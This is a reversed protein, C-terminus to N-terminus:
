CSYDAPDAVTAGNTSKYVISPLACEVGHKKMARAIAFVVEQRNRIFDGTAPQIDFHALVMGQVHDTEFSTLVAHFSKSGDSVLKPCALKIEQKIEELVAPLKDLDSHKFRLYQRIRSRTVRSLNSVRSKTLQSNPIRTVINDYGQFITDVLGIELIKGATGDGLRVKDGVDIANWANITVGGVIETALDKSALSFILAGVGGASLM